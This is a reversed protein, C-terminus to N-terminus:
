QPASAGCLASTSARVLVKSKARPASFRRPSSKCCAHRSRLSATVADPPRSAPSAPLPLSLLYLSNGCDKHFVLPSLHLRNWHTTPRSGMGTVRQLCLSAALHATPSLLAPREPQRGSAHPSQPLLPVSPAWWSSLETECQPPSNGLGTSIGVLRTLM